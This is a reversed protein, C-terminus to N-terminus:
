ILIPPPCLVNESLKNANQPNKMFNEKKEKVLTQSKCNWQNIVNKNLFDTWIGPISQFCVLLTSHEKEPCDM